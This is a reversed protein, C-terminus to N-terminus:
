FKLNIGRYHLIIESSSVLRLINKSSVNQPFELVRKRLKLSTRTPETLM